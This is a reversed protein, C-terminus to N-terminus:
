EDFYEKLCKFVKKEDYEEKKLVCKMMESRCKRVRPRKYDNVLSPDGCWLSIAILAEM